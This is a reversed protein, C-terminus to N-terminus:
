FVLKRTGAVSSVVLARYLAPCIDVVADSVGISAILARETFLTEMLGVSVAMRIDIVTRIVITSTVGTGVTVCVEVEVRRCLTDCRDIVTITTSGIIM